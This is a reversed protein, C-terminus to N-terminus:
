NCTVPIPDAINAIEKFDLYNITNISYNDNLDKYISIIVMQENANTLVNGEYALYCYNTGSVM